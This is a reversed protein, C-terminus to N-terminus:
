NQRKIELKVIVTGVSQLMIRKCGKVTIGNLDEAIQIM